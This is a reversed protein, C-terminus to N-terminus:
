SEPAPMVKAGSCGLLATSASQEIENVLNSQDEPMM